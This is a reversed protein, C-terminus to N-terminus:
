AGKEAGRHSVEERMLPLARRSELAAAAARELRQVAIFGLPPIGVLRSIEIGRIPEKGAAPSEGHEIACKGAQAGLTFGGALSRQELRERWQKGGAGGSGVGLEGGREPEAFAGEFHGDM